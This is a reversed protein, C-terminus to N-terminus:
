CFSELVFDKLSGDILTGNYCATDVHVNPSDKMRNLLTEAREVKNPINSTSYANLVASASFEIGDMNRGDSTMENWLREAGDVNSNKAYINILASFTSSDPIIGTRRLFAEAKEAANTSGVGVWCMVVCTLLRTEPNLDNFTNDVELLHNKERLAKMQEYIQEARPGALQSKSKAWSDIVYIFTSVDPQVNFNDALFEKYMQRLFNEADRASQETGRQICERFLIRYTQRSRQVKLEDMLRLIRTIGNNISATPRNAMVWSLMVYNWLPTTPLCDEMGSDYLDLSHSLVTEAFEPTCNEKYHIEALLIHRFVKESVPIEYRKCYTNMIDDLIDQPSLNCERLVEPFFMYVCRWNTLLRSLTKKGLRRETVATNPANGMESENNSLWEESDFSQNYSSTTPAPLEDSTQSLTPQQQKSIEMEQCARRLLAFQLIVARICNQEPWGNMLINEASFWQETTWSGLATELLRSTGVIKWQWNYFMNNNTSYGSGTSDLDEQMENLDDPVHSNPFSTTYEVAVDWEDDAENKLARQVATEPPGFIETSSVLKEDPLNVNSKERDDSSQPNEDVASQIETISAVSGTSFGMVRPLNPVAISYIRSPYLLTRRLMARKLAVGLRIRFM